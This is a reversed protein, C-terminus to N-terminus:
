GRFNDKGSRLKAFSAVDPARLFPNAALEDAM